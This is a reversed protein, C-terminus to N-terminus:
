KLYHRYLIYMFLGVSIWESTKAVNWEMKTVMKYNKEYDTPVNCITCGKDSQIDTKVVNNQKLLEKYRDVTAKDLEILALDVASNRYERTFKWSRWIVRGQLWQKKDQISNISSPYFRVFNASSV